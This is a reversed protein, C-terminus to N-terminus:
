EQLHQHGALQLAPVLRGLRHGFAGPGALGL